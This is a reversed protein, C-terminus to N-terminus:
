NTTLQPEQEQSHVQGLLINLSDEGHNFLLDISSLKDIFAGYQQRYTPHAFDYYRVSIGAQMFMDEDMYNKAGFGSLYVDAGLARCVNVMPETGTGTYSDLETAVLLPTHIRLHKRILKILAVNLDYLKEWPRAYISQFEEAYQAWFPSSRYCTEITRWHKKRWRGDECIVVDRIRVERKSLPVTLKVAGQSSKVKNWHTFSSSSHLAYDNLIFVDCNAMKYFYGLWPLYNPQHIAVVQSKAMTRGGKKCAVM